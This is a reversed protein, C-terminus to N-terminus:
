KENENDNESHIINNICFCKSEKKNKLIYEAIKPHYRPHLIYLLLLLAAEPNQMANAQNKALKLM